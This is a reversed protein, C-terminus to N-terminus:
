KSHILQNVKKVYFYNLILIAEKLTQHIREIFNGTFHIELINRQSVGLFKISDNYKDVPDTKRKPSALSKQKSQKMFSRM